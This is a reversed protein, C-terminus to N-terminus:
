SVQHPNEGYRLTHKLTGTLVLKEPFKQSSQSAFWAAIAGDYAATRAFAAAAYKRRLGLTTCGDNETLEMLLETYQDVDTVVLVDTFNKSAARIMAPGGIDINEVCTAFDAGAAVTESFPYLNVVCADIPEIGYEKMSKVHEENGRIGLLGGHIKPNLTKLRGDLMEPFATYDSM